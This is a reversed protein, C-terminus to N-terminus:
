RGYRADFAAVVARLGDVNNPRAVGLPVHRMVYAADSYARHTSAKSPMSRVSVEGSQFRGDAVAAMWRDHKRIWAALRRNDYRASEVYWTEITVDKGYFNINPDQTATAEMFVM